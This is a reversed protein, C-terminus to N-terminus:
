QQRKKPSPGVLPKLVVGGGVSTMEHLIKTVIALTRDDPHHPRRLHPARVKRLTNADIIAADGGVASLIEVPTKADPPGPELHAVQWLGFDYVYPLLDRVLTGEIALTKALQLVEVVQLPLM